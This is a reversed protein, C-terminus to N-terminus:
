LVYITVNKSGWQYCQSSSNMFLDVTFKGKNIFGGTDAAIAYGYVTGDNAVIWLETGYPFQNPDVAIYGPKVTRGSATRSGSPATYAAAKGTVVSKYSTPVGNVIELGAPPTLESIAGGSAKVSSVAAAAVAKQKTGVTTIQTVAEKIVTEKEVKSSAVKGDVVKDRYTVEKSGNEGQQTVKSDGKFMDSSKVTKKDFAVTKTVTRTAYEVRHVKIELGDSLATDVAPETEDNEGLSIGLINLADRVTGDGTTLANSVGDATVTIHYANQLRILMGDSVIEDESVNLLLDENLTIGNESLFDAVTGAFVLERKEGNIDEFTIASARYIVVTGDAVESYADLNLKDNEALEIGAQRCVAEADSKYTTVRTIESGDYIDVNHLISPSAAFATGTCLIAIVLILAATKFVTSRTVSISGKVQTIM